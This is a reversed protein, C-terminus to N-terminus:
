HEPHAAMSILLASLLTFIFAQIFAIFIELLYIAAALVVSFPAVLYSQLMIILGLFVLIAVHGAIMNAFLRICLAFPKAFLTLIEIPIMIPLLWVPMGSPVLSKFYGFLGNNAIGTVQIVVFTCLALAATVSINGTATASYPIMGVLNCFLILFFITLLFPLFPRGREGMTSEVVEDRIFVVMAEFLNAMGSPVLQRRRFATLMSVILLASAVWLMVLHRTISFDIGFIPDFQPLLIHGDFYRNANIFPVELFKSDLIHGIIDVQGKAAEAASADGSM